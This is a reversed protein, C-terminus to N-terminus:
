FCYPFNIIEIIWCVNKTYKELTKLPVKLNLVVQYLHPNSNM